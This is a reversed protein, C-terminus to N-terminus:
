GSIAVPVIILGALQLFRAIKYLMCWEAAHPRRKRQGQRTCKRFLHLWSCQVRLTGGPMFTRSSAVIKECVHRSSLLKRDVVFASDAIMSKRVKTQPLGHAPM